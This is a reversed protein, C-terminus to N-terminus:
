RQADHTGLHRRHPLRPHAHRRRGVRLRRRAPLGFMSYFIYFPIMRVGHNSHSTGAAMWSCLSGAETIGEELIQGNKAEIYPAIQGADVPDYLQGVSSYIGLQRFMGEMGFTRAEDAVIPVLHPRLAKDRTLTM